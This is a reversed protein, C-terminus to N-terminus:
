RREPRRAAPAKTTPTALPTTSVGRLRIAYGANHRLDAYELPRNFRETVVGITSLFVETRAIVEADTGRGLEIDAGSRLEAQWSGRGSLTLTDVGTNFAAQLLPVLRRYMALVQPATGEPGDLSPLSGDEIDGLNAEFVEGEVNVLKGDGWYAAPVHEELDVALRNPWVRRLVAHRVWPVNEFAQRAEDLNLTFLNGRLHPAANARITSVSNRSTDGDIRIAHIAFVPQRVIWAICLVAIALGAVVFMVSATANMLRIEVPIETRLAASNTMADLNM